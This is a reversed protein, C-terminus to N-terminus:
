KGYDVARFMTVKLVVPKEKILKFVCYDGHTLNNDKLFKPFGMTIQMSFSKPDYLICHVKWHKGQSNQLAIPVNPMLYKQAFKATVNQV